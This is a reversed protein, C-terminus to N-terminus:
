RGSTLDLDYDLFQGWQWVFDSARAANPISGVRAAVANSIDRASAHHAGAAAGISDANALTTLRCLPM